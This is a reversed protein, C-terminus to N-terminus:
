SPPATPCAKAELRSIRGAEGQLNAPNLPGDTPKLDVDIWYVNGARKRDALVPDLGLAHVQAVRAQARKPESFLGLSIVSGDGPGPVELADDIGAAKLRALLQVTDPPNPPVAVYVWFGAWVEGEVLRQRPEYGGARLTDAARSAEAVDRFPGVSTCRDSSTPAAGGGDGSPEAAASAAGTTEISDGAAPSTRAAAPAESLLRLSPVAATGAPEPAQAVGHVWLFYIM